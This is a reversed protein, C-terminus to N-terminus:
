DYLDQQVNAAKHAGRIISNAYDLQKKGVARLSDSDRLNLLILAKQGASKEADEEAM